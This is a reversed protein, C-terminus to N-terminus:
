KGPFVYFVPFEMLLLSVIRTLNVNNTYPFIPVQHFFSLICSFRLNPFRLILTESYKRLDPLHNAGLIVCLHTSLISIISPSFEYNLRM